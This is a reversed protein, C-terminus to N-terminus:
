LMSNCCDFIVRGVRNIGRGDILNRQKEKIERLAEESDWLFQIASLFQDKKIDKFLGLHYNCGYRGQLIEGADANKQIHGM